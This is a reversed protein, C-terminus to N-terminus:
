HQQPQDKGPKEAATIKIEKLMNELTNKDVKGKGYEGYYYLNVAERIKNGLTHNDDEIRHAMELLAEGPIRHYGKSELVKLLKEGWTKPKHKLWFLLRAILLTVAMVIVFIALTGKGMKPTAIHPRRSPSFLATVKKLLRAQKHVDYSLVWQYWQLRVYDLLRSGLSIGKRGSTESSVPPTPDFPIWGTGAKYTEVWAHAHSNRIIYYHGLNNWEGGWSGAVLRAPVHRCRLLLAM